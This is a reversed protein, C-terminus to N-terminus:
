SLELVKISVEVIYWTIWLLKVLGILCTWCLFFCCCCYYHYFMLIKQFSKLWEPDVVSCFSAKPLLFVNRSRLPFVAQRVAPHVAWLAPVPGVPLGTQPRIQLSSPCCHDWDLELVPPVDQFHAQNSLLFLTTSIKSFMLVLSSRYRQLHDPTLNTTNYLCIYHAPFACGQRIHHSM